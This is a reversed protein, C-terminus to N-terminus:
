ILFIHPPIWNHNHSNHNNGNHPHPHSPSSLSLASLIQPGPLPDLHLCLSCSSVPSPRQFSDWWSICIQSNESTTSYTYSTWPPHTWQPLFKPLLSINTTAANTRCMWFIVYICGDSPNKAKVRVWPFRQLSAAKPVLDLLKPVKSPSLEKKERWISYNELKGWARSKGSLSWFAMQTGIHERQLDVQNQLGNCSSILYSSWNISKKIYILMWIALFKHTRLTLFIQM